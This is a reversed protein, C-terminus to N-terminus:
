PNDVMNPNYQLIQPPIKLTLREDTLTFTEADFKKTRDLNNFKADKYLRRMDFWRMGTSAFERHREALIFKVLDDQNTVTVTADALPMRNKRLEEVDAKAGAVDNARAKCEASMLLLNPLNPGLNVSTPSNRMFGPLSITGNAVNRNLFMKRRHDTTAFLALIAPKLFLCNRNVTSSVSLQRLFINEESNYLLPYGSAGRWPQAATFWGTPAAATMTTNYNYLRIPLPGGTLGAKAENLFTLATAYNGMQFYVMGLMYQAAPRSMRVRSYVKPQLDPIAQTLENIVFDYLEKVTARKFDSANVDANVVIPVSLDTTATNVNYPQGFLNAVIFHNFARCAKAEALLEKKRAETGGESSMVGAAVLNYNYLQNYFAGWENSEDTPLYPNAEWKFGNQWAVTPIANLFGASSFVDDGMFLPMEASGLLSSIGGPQNRINLYSFLNANNFIGNFQDTTKLVDLGKPTVDLFSECGSISIWLTCIFALSKITSKKM